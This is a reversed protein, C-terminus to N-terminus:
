QPADALAAGLDPARSPAADGPQWYFRNGYDRERSRVQRRFADEKM